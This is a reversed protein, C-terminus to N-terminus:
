LLKTRSRYRCSPQRAETGYGVRKAASLRLHEGVRVSLTSCNVASSLRKALVITGWLVLLWVMHRSCARIPSHVSLLASFIISINITKALITGQLTMNFSYFRAFFVALLAGALAGSFIGGAFGLRVFLEGTAPMPCGLVGGTGRLSSLSADPLQIGLFTPLPNLSLLIGKIGELMEVHGYLISWTLNDMGSTGAVFTEILSVDEIMDNSFVIQRIGGRYDDQGRLLTAFIFGSAVVVAVVALGLLCRRAPRPNFSTRVLWFVGVALFCGRSAVAMKWLIEPLIALRSFAIGRKSFRSAFHDTVGAMYLVAWSLMRPLMDGFVGLNTRPAWQRQNEYERLGSMALSAGYYAVRYVFVGISVMLLVRAYAGWDVGTGLRPDLRHQKPILYFFFEYSVVMVFSWYAIFRIATLQALADVAGIRTHERALHNYILPFAYAIAYFFPIVSVAWLLRGAVAQRVLFLLALVLLGGAITIVQMSTEDLNQM